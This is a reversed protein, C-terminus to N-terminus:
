NARFTRKQFSEVLTCPGSCFREHHGCCQVASFPIFKSM